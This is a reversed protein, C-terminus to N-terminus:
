EKSVKDGQLYKKLNEKTTKVQQSDGGYAAAEGYIYENADKTNKLRTPESETQEEALSEAYGILRLQKKEDKIKKFVSLLTAANKKQIEDFELNLFEPSRETRGLLYDVSCNLVDAIKALNDAKPMSNKYASMTNFGLGANLLVQRMSINKNDACQKIREAVDKSNYM